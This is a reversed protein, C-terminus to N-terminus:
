TQLKLWSDRDVKPKNLALQTRPIGAAVKELESISQSRLRLADSDSPSLLGDLDNSGLPEYCIAFALWEQRDSPVTAVIALVSDMLPANAGHRVQADLSSKVDEVVHQEVSFQCDTPMGAQELFDRGQGTLVWGNFVGSDSTRHTILGAYVLDLLVFQLDNSDADFESEFERTQIYGYQAILSLAFLADDSGMIAIADNNREAFQLLGSASM